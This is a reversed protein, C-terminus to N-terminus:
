SQWIHGQTLASSVIDDHGIRGAARCTLSGRQRHHRRGLQQALKGAILDLKAGLRRGPHREPQLRAATQPRWKLPDGHLGIDSIWASQHLEDLRIRWKGGTEVPQCGWSVYKIGCGM